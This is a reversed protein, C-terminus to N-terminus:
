HVQTGTFAVLGAYVTSGVCVAELLLVQLVEHDSEWIGLCREELAGLESPDFETADLLLEFLESIHVLLRIEVVGLIGEVWILKSDLVVGILGLVLRRVQM